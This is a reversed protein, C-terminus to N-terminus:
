QTKRGSYEFLKFHITGAKGQKLVQLRQDAETFDQDSETYILSDHHVAGCNLLQIVVNGLQKRSYPPDLFVIDFQKANTALWSLGDVCIIEAGEAGLTAAQSKLAKVVVPNSDVMTATTAGRSLSEFGLIGTGAFLDLCIAGEIYPALWNFLTERVRDPTPRLDAAETVELRRSRWKGAIIRVNGPGM